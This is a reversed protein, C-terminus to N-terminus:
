CPYFTALATYVLDAGTGRADQPARAAHSLVANILANSGTGTALCAQRPLSTFRQLAASTDTAGVVYSACITRDVPASSQCADLLQQGTMFAAQAPTALAAVALLLGLRM